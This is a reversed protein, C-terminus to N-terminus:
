SSVFSQFIWYSYLLVQIFSIHIYIFNLSITYLYLYYNLVDFISIFIYTVSYYIFYNYILLFLVKSNISIIYGLFWDCKWIDHRHENFNVKNMIMRTHHKCHLEHAYAIVLHIIIIDYYM